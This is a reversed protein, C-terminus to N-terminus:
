CQLFLHNETEQCKAPSSIELLATSFISPLWVVGVSIVTFVVVQGLTKGSKFGISFLHILSLCLSLVGGAFFLHNNEATFFLVDAM